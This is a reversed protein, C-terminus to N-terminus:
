QQEAVKAAASIDDVIVFKIKSRTLAKALPLHSKCVVILFGNGIAVGTHIASMTAMGSEDIMSLATGDIVLRNNGEAIHAFMTDLFKVNDDGDILRGFFTFALFGYTDRHDTSNFQYSKCNGGYHLVSM